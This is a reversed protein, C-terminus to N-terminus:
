LLASISDLTVGIDDFFQERMCKLIVKKDETTFRESGRCEYNPSKFIYRILLMQNGTLDTTAMSEELCKKCVFGGDPFSFAVIDKTSGCFVCKDVELESGTLKAARALLILLVMMQDKKAKLATLAEEVDKFLLHKEGEAFLKNAAENIVSITCLYSLDNDLTLPSSILKAEKLTPHKFRRDGNFEVDAITLPNNLWMYQSKSSQGGCVKFSHEGDESIANYIIDNEKYKNNGLVIIKM